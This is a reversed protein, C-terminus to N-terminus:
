KCKKRKDSVPEKDKSRCKEMAIAVAQKQEHGAKVLESINASITEKACGKKLPM